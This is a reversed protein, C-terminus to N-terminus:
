EYEGRSQSRGRGNQLNMSVREQRVLEFETGEKNFTKRTKRM